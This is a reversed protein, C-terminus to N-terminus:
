LCRRLKTQQFVEWGCGDLEGDHVWADLYHPSLLNILDTVLIHANMLSILWWCKKIFILVPFIPSVKHKHAHLDSTTLGFIPKETLLTPLTQLLSYRQYSIVSTLQLPELLKKFGLCVNSQRRDVLSFFSFLSSSSSSFLTVALYM